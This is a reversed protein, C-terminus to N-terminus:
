GERVKEKKAGFIERLGRNELVMQLGKTYSVFSYPLM